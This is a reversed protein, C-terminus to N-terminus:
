KWEGDVTMKLWMLLLLEEAFRWRKNMSVRMIGCHEALLSNILILPSFVLSCVHKVIFSIWCTLCEHLSELLWKWIKKEPKAEPRESSMKAREWVNLWRTFSLTPRSTVLRVNMRCHTWHWQMKRRIRHLIWLCDTWKNTLQDTLATQRGTLWDTCDTQWDTCDAQWDTCDTQRDTEWNTPWNALATLWETYDTPTDNLLTLYTNSVHPGNVLNRYKKININHKIYWRPLLLTQSTTFKVVAMYPKKKQFRFFM